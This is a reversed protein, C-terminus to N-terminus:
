SRAIKERGAPPSGVIGIAFLAIPITPAPYHVVHLVEGSPHFGSTCGSSLVSHGSTEDEFLM